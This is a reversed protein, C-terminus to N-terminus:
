NVLYFGNPESLGPQHATYTLNPPIRKRERSTTCPDRPDMWGLVDSVSDRYVRTPERTVVPGNLLGSGMSRQEPKWGCCRAKLKGEVCYGSVWM